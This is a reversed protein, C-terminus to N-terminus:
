VVGNALVGLVLVAPFLCRLICDKGLTFFPVLLFRTSPDGLVCRSMWVQLRRTGSCGDSLTETCATFKAVGASWTAAAAAAAAAAGGGWVSESLANIFETAAVVSRVLASASVTDLVSADM